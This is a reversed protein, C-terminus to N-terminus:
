NQDHMFDSDTSVDVDLSAKGVVSVRGREQVVGEAHESVFFEAASDKKVVFEVDRSEFLGTLTGLDSINAQFSQSSGSLHVYSDNLTLHADITHLGSLRMESEDRAAIRLDSLEEDASFSLECYGTDKAELRLDDAVSLDHGELMSTEIRAAHLKPLVITAELTGGGFNKDIELHLVGDRSKVHVHDMLNSHARVTVSHETGTEVIAYFGGSVNIENFAEVPYVHEEIPGTGEPTCGASAIAM